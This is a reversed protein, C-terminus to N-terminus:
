HLGKFQLDICFLDIAIFIVQIEHLYDGLIEAYKKHLRSFFFILENDIIFKCWFSNWLSTFSVIVFVSVSRQTFCYSVCKCVKSHVLSFHM